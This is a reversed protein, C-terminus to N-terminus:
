YTTEVNDVTKSRFKAEIKKWFIMILLYFALIAIGHPFDSNFIRLPYNCLAHIIVCLAFNQTRIYLLVFLAGMIFLRIQDVILNEYHKVLIRNPLHIVAFFLQTIIISIILAMRNSLRNRLIIYLQLFFIGRFILEENLANGFLQGLLAGIEKNIHPHLSLTEKSFFVYIIVTIQFILWFIIGIWLATKLKEKTLWLSSLNHKGIKFIIFGFILLSILNAQLTSNIFYYSMEAIPKFFDVSFAYNVLISLVPQIIVILLLLKPDLKHIREINISNIM